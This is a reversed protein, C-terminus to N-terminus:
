RAIPTNQDHRRMERVVGKSPGHVRPRLCTLANGPMAGEDQDNQRGVERLRRAGRTGTGHSYRVVHDM